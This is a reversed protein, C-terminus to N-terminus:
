LMWIKWISKFTKMSRELFNWDFKKFNHISYYKIIHFIILEVSVVKFCSDLKEKRGKWNGERNKCCKPCWKSKGTRSEKFHTNVWFHFSRLIENQYQIISSAYNFIWFIDEKTLPFSKQSSIDRQYRQSNDGWSQSDQELFAACSQSPSSRKQQSSEWQNM